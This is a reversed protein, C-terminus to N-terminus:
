PASIWRPTFAMGRLLASITNIKNRGIIREMTALLASIKVAVIAVVAVQREVAKTSVNRKKSLKAIALAVGAIARHLCELLDHRGNTSTKALFNPDNHAGVAPKCTFRDHGPAFFDPRRSNPAPM